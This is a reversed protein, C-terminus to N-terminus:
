PQTGNLYPNNEAPPLVAYQIYDNTKLVNLTYGPIQFIDAPSEATDFWNALEEASVEEQFEYAIMMQLGYKTLYAAIEPVSGKITLNLTLAPSTDAATDADAYTFGAEVSWDNNGFYLINGQPDAVTITFQDKLVKVGDEGLFDAYHDAMANMMANFRSVFERPTMFAPVAAGAPAGPGEPYDTHFVTRVQGDTFQILTNYPVLEPAYEGQLLSIFEDANYKEETGEPSMWSFTFDDRLPLMIKETGAKTCPNWDNVLAICETDSIKEFAFYGDFEEKVRLERRGDEEPLLAEATWTEGNIVIKDGEQLAYVQELSYTDELYLEATFYGGAEIRDTDTIRVRFTGNPSGAETGSVGAPRVTKTETKGGNEAMGGALALVLAAALILALIKKM